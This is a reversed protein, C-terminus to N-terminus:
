EYWTYLSAFILPIYSLPLANSQLDLPGQNLEPHGRIKGSKAVKQRNTNEKGPYRLLRATRGRIAYGATPESSSEDTWARQFHLLQYAINRLGEKLWIVKKTQTQQPM